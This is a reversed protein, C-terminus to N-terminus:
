LKTSTGSGQILPRKTRLYEYLSTHLNAALSPSYVGVFLGEAYGATLPWAAVFYSPGCSATVSEDLTSSGPFQPATMVCDAYRDGWHKRRQYTDVDSRYQNIAANYTEAESLPVDRPCTRLGLFGCARTTSPPTPEIPPSGLHASRVAEADLTLGSEDEFGTASFGQSPDVVTQTAIAGYKAKLDSLLQSLQPRNGQPPLYLRWIGVVKQAGPPGGLRLVVQQTIQSYCPFGGGTIGTVLFSRLRVDDPILSGGLSSSPQEPAAPCARKTGVTAVLLNKYGGERLESLLANADHAFQGNTGNWIEPKGEMCDLRLSAEDLPIGLHIDLIAQSPDGAEAPLTSCPDVTRATQPSHSDSSCGVLICLSYLTLKSRHRIM